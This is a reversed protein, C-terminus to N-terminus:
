VAARRYLLVGRRGIHNILEQNDIHDLISIDFTYPLMLNDLDISISNLTHLNLGEGKLTIDIDSGNRYNGMARSGYLVVEKLESYNQFVNVISSIVQESLGYQKM